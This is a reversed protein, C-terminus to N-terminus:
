RAKEVHALLAASMQEITKDTTDVEVAGDPKVLPATTRVEDRRDREVIAQRVDERAVSEGRQRLEEARRQARIDPSAVLFFKIDAHPFVVSGQDRGESVFDGLQDGIRRQLAVLVERVAPCGAAYRTHETVRSSRIAESVDRGDLLVCVGDARPVLRLDMRRALDALREGDRLDVGEALAKLTVARYTAGTDLYAIDLARALDRAATSKGSGAPGDITIIM